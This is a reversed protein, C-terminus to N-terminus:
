QLKEQNQVLLSQMLMLFSTAVVKGNVTFALDSATVGTVTESYGLSVSGDANLTATKLEPKVDDVLAATNFATTSMTNGAADKIGAVNLSYNRSESISGTPLFLNITFSPATGTVTAYTGAPLPAGDLRYNNLDLVTSANLSNAETVAIRIESGVVTVGTANPALSDTTTGTGPVTVFSNVAATSGNTNLSKDNAAASPLRLTFSTLTSPVVSALQIVVETADNANVAAAAIETATIYTSTVDVGNNDILKLGTLTGKTVAENFQVVVVGNALAVGGYNAGVTSSAKVHKVSAVTPATVDRTVSVSRNTTSLTNGVSDTISNTFVLTANFVGNNFPLAPVDDLSIQFTKNGSGAKAVVGTINGAALDAFNGDLLKITSNTLTGPAMAKDFTVEILNDRVVNVTSVVPANVNSAVTVTTKSPNATLFNGAYDTFNLVEM